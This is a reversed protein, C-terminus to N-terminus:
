EVNDQYSYINISLYREDSASESLGLSFSHPTDDFNFSLLQKFLDNNATKGLPFFCTGHSGPRRLSKRSERAVGPTMPTVLTRSKERTDKALVVLYSLITFGEM